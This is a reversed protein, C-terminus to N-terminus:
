ISLVAPNSLDYGRASLVTAAQARRVVIQDYTALLQDRKSEEIATLTRTQSLENLSALELQHDESLPTRAILWLVEDSLSYFVALEAEVEEPLAPSEQWHEVVIDRVLDGVARKQREASAQLQEALQVPLDIIIPTNATAM